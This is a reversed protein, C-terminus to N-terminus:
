YSQPHFGVLTFTSLLKVSVWAFSHSTPKSTQFSPMCTPLFKSLLVTFPLFSYFHPVPQSALFSFILCSPCQYLLILSVLLLSFTHISPPPLFPLILAFVGFGKHKVITQNLSNEFLFLASSLISTWLFKSSLQDVTPPPNCSHAQISQIYRSQSNSM